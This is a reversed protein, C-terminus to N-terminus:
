KKEGSGVAAAEDQMIIAPTPKVPCEQSCIGCGKCHYLDIGVVKGNEVLIASDPCYVWCFMCHICKEPVFLPRQSRWDGTRYADANGAELIVGGMPIEQWDLKRELRASKAKLCKDRGNDNDTM